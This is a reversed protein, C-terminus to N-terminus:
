KTAVAPGVNPSLSINTNAGAEVAVRETATYIKGDRVVEANFTYYHVTGSTLEPTAFVRVTSTSTTPAGNITIKADAPVNVTIYAPAQSNLTVGGTKPKPMEKKPEVVPAPQGVPDVIVGGGYCGNCGSYVGSCGTCGKSHKGGGFLGGGFIGGGGCCGHKAHGGNCGNCSYSVVPAGYCGNCGNCSNHKGGGFLGGGGGFLGGGSCGKSHKSSSGYCGNCGYSVVGGYCGNCGNSKGFAAAEPSASVAMMLVMSYM